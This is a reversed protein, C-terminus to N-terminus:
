GERQRRKVPLASGKPDASHGKKTQPFFTIENTGYAFASYAKAPSYALKRAAVHKPGADRQGERERRNEERSERKGRGRRDRGKGGKSPAHLVRRTQKAAKKTHPLFTIENTGNAFASSTQRVSYALPALSDHGPAAKPQM